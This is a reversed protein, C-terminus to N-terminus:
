TLRVTDGPRAKTKQLDFGALVVKDGLKAGLRNQMSPLQFLAKTEPVELSAVQAYRIPAKDKEDLPLVAVVLGYKGSQQDVPLTYWHKSVVAEGARWRYTPYGQVLPLLQEGTPRGKDDLLALRVIYAALPQKPSRWQLTIEVPEGAKASSRDVKAGLLEMRDGSSLDWTAMPSQGPPSLSSEPTPRVNVTGLSISTGLGAGSWRAASVEKMTAPDYLHLEVQYNGPPTGPPIALKHRDHVIEQVRWRSSPYLATAMVEDTRAWVHRDADVLSLVIKYNADIKNNPRWHLDYQISDGSAASDTSSNWGWFELRSPGFLAEQKHDVKPYYSFPQGPIVQFLRLGLGGFSKDLPMEQAQTEMTHMVYDAPDVWDKQWLIFWLRKHQQAIRNLLIIAGDTDDYPELPYWPIQGTSYYVYPHYTNMMLVVADGPEAQSELYSVLARYDGYEASAGSGDGVHMVKTPEGYVISIAVSGALAAIGLIPFLVRLLIIRDPQVAQRLMAAIGWALTLYFAPTIILLYRPDFKPRFYAVGFILAAPILMYLLLFFAPQSFNRRSGGVLLALIGLLLLGVGLAMPLVMGQLDAGGGVVFQLLSTRIAADLRLTGPWYDSIRQIQAISFGLWPLFCIGVALTTLLWRKWADGYPKRVLLVFAAQSLLLLAATYHTYLAALTALGYAIWLRRSRGALALLLLYSSLLGALTVAMYNRAEQSFGIYYASGAALVSAVLGVLSIAPRDEPDTLRELRSGALYILPILLAGAIASPFRAAYEGNGALTMWYHLFVPYLPPHIDETVLLQMLEPLPKSAFVVSMAEDVWLSQVGLNNLRVALAIATVIAVLLPAIFAGM